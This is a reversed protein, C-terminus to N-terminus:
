PVPTAAEAPVPAAPATSEVPAAPPVPPVPPTSGPAGPPPLTPPALEQAVLRKMPELQVGTAEAYVMEGGLYGQYGIGATGVLMLLVFLGRARVPMGRAVLGWILLVTYLGLVSLGVTKHLKLLERGRETFRSMTGEEGMGTVVALIGGLAGFVLCWYGASELSERDFGIYLLNFILAMVLLAIPFHVVGPHLQIPIMRYFDYFAQPLMLESM